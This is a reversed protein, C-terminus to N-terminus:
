SRSVVYAMASVKFDSAPKTGNEKGKSLLGKNEANAVKSAKIMAAQHVVSDDVLTVQSGSSPLSSPTPSQPPAGATTAAATTPATSKRSSLFTM